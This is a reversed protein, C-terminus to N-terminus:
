INKEYNIGDNSCMNENSRATHCYYYNTNNKSKYGSVLYNIRDFDDVKPYLSCKSDSLYFKCNICFKEENIIEEDKVIKQLDTYPNFLKFKKVENLFNFCNIKMIALFLLYSICKM